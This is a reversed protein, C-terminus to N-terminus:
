HRVIRFLLAYLYFNVDFRIWATATWAASM